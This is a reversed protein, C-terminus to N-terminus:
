TKCILFVFFLSDQHHWIVARVQRPRNEYDASIPINITQEGPSMSQVVRAIYMKKVERDRFQRSLEACSEANKAYMLVGSTEMDLRHVHYIKHGCYEEVRDASSVLHEPITSFAHKHMSIDVENISSWIKKQIGPDTIKVSRELFGYFKQEKRPISHQRAVLELQEKILSYGCEAEKSAALRVADLWEDSRKKPLVHTPKSGKLPVSAENPVKDIVIIQDDEFLIPISLQLRPEKGVPVDSSPCSHKNMVVFRTHLFLHTSPFAFSLRVKTFLRIATIRLGNM